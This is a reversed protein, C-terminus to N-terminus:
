SAHARVVDLIQTAIQPEFYDAVARKYATELKYFRTKRLVAINPRVGWSIPLSGQEILSRLESSIAMVTDLVKKPPPKGNTDESYRRMLIEREIHDPPMEVKFKTLRDVLAHDLETAGHYKPDWAPNIAMLMFAYANRVVPPPTVLRREGTEPDKLMVAANEMVFQKSNDCMPLLVEQIVTDARNPEDLLAVGRNRWRIPLRGDKWVTEGDVFLWTGILSDAETSKNFNIRDFPLGMNWALHRAFETKGLGADAIMIPTEDLETWEVTAWYTMGQADIFSAPSEPDDTQPVRALEVADFSGADFIPLFVPEGFGAPDEIKRWARIGMKEDHPEVPRDTEYDQPDIIESRWDGVGYGFDDSYVPLVEMSDVYSYATSGIVGLECEKAEKVFRTPFILRGTAMCSPATWGFQRYTDSESLLFKCDQCSSPAEVISGDPVNLTRYNLSERLAHPSPSAVRAELFEVASVGDIPKPEGFQDCTKAFQEGIKRVTADSSSAKGFVHGFRLCGPGGIDKGFRRAVEGRDAYSPCDRCSKTAM